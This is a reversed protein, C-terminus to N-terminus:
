CPAAALPGSKDPFYAQAARLQLEAQADAVARELAATDGADLVARADIHLGAADLATAAASRKAHLLAPDDYSLRLIPPRM